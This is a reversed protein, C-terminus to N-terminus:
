TEEQLTNKKDGRQRIAPIASLGLPMFIFVALLGLYIQGAPTKFYGIQDQFNMGRLGLGVGFEAIQVLLFGILGVMLLTTNSWGSSKRHVAIWAGAIIAVIMFPAELLIATTRGYVPTLVMERFVGCVFGAGFVIGFYVLGATMIRM